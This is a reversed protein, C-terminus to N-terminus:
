YFHLGGDISSHWHSQSHWKDISSPLIVYIGKHLFFCAAPMRKGHMHPVNQKLYIPTGPSLIGTLLFNLLRRLPGATLPNRRDALGLGVM